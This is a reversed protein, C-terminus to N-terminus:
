KCQESEAQESQVSPDSKDVMATKSFKKIKWQVKEWNGVIFEEENKRFDTMKAPLEM